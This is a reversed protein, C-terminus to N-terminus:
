LLQTLVEALVSVDLTNVDLCVWLGATGPAEREDHEARRLGDVLHGGDGVVDDVVLLHVRLLGLRALALDKDSSEGGLDAVILDLGVEALKSGHTSSM